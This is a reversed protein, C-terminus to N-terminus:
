IEKEFFYDNMRFGEGIDQIISGNQKFGLHKYVNIALKNYKNVTLYIRSMGEERGRDEIFNLADKSYGKGRASKKVYLKSLFMTPKPTEMRCSFYGVYGSRDNILYYEYGEEIQMNIANTTQFRNLMYKTQEPGIISEYHEHWIEKALDAVIVVESQYKDVKIIEM